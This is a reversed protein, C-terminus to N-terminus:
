ANWKKATEQIIKDMEAELKSSIREIEHDINFKRRMLTKKSDKKEFIEDSDRAKLKEDAGASIKSDCAM